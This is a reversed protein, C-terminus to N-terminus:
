RKRQHPKYDASAFPTPTGYLGMPQVKRQVPHAFSLALVDAYDPSDVGRKLMDEKSELLLKGDPRPKVEIDLLNQRLTPHKPIAGGEKLWQRIKLYMSARKNVCSPDDAAEGFGVLTWARGWTRGASVIGTGWGLDVFVADAKHEDELQALLSAVQLDNDNKPLERLIEFALGQRKGIVLMNHGTWAPDCTLIVPAHKFSEDRLPRGYAADVDEESFLGRISMSPFIGRVRVKVFDSDEGHDEVWQALLTKNTGPVTRSDIQRCSWRHRNARFCERFAGSAQTPNGFAAWIIETDADTLAGETVEWVKDAIASAEDFLVVLRKGENHAGAFAETNHESWTLADARWTAAHAADASYYSTATWHWWDKTLALQHWKNLEPWTKSTLQKETNATILVRTDERTDLAWRILWAVLASKGIGHGSSTALRIVEPFGLPEGAQLREGLHTLFERHWPYPGDKDALPTNPVGWPYSYLVHGLPDHRFRAMDEALALTDEATLPM